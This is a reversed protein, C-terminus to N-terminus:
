TQERPVEVKLQNLEGNKDKRLENWHRQFTYKQEYRTFYLEHALEIIDDSNSGSGIRRCAQNYCGGFQQAETNIRHWQKKM